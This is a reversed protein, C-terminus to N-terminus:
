YRDLNQREYRAKRVEEVEETIEELSLDSTKLRSLLNKFRMEFTEGELYRTLEIKESPSCQSILLKIQSIDLTITASM